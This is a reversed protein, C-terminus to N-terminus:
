TKLTRGCLSSVRRSSSSRRAMPFPRPTSSTPTTGGSNRCRMSDCELECLHGKCPLAVRRHCELLVNPRLLTSPPHFVKITKFSGLPKLLKNYEDQKLSVGANKDVYYWTWQPQFFTLRTSPIHREIERERWHHSVEKDDGGGAEWGRPHHHYPTHISRHMCFPCPMISTTRHQVHPEM